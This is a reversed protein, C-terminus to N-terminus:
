YDFIWDLNDFPCWKAYLENIYYVVGLKEPGLKKAFDRISLSEQKSIAEKGKAIWMGLKDMQTDKFMREADRFRQYTVLQSESIKYDKPAEWGIYRFINWLYSWHHEVSYLANSFAEDFDKNQDSQEIESIVFEFNDYKFKFRGIVFGSRCLYIWGDDKYFSYRDEWGPEFSKIIRRHIEGSVKTKLFKSQIKHFKHREINTRSDNKPWFHNTWELQRHIINLESDFKDRLWNPLILYVPNEQHTEKLYKEKIFYQRCGYMAAAIMGTLACNLRIDGICNVANHIASGFDFSNYFCDWARFIYCLTNGEETRWNWDKICGQFVPGLEHWVEKKSWGKRLLTMITTLWMRAYGDEKENHPEIFDQKDWYTLTAHRMLLMGMGTRYQYMNPCNLWDKVNVTITVDNEHSLIYHKLNDLNNVEDTEAYKAAYFVSLSLISIRAEDDFLRSFFNEKNRCYTDAALDGIIAGIM